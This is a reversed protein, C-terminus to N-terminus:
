RAASKVLVPKRDKPHRMFGDVPSASVHDAILAEPGLVDLYKETTSIKAHGLMEQLLKLNGGNKLYNTAATHRYSHAGRKITNPLGARYSIRRIAMLIGRQKLPRLEETVWLCELQDKRKQRMLLYRLLAKQAEQGLVVIREKRGKGMVKVLGQEPYIDALQMGALEASRVGSDFLILVIARNRIGCFTLDKETVKMVREVVDNPWAQVLKQPIYPATLKAFPNKGEPIVDETELWNFFTHIPRYFANISEPTLPRGLKGTRGQQVLIYARIHDREIKLLPLDGCTEHIFQIFYGIMNRYILLTAYSKNDVRRAILFNLLYRRLETDPLSEVDPVGQLQYGKGLLADLLM